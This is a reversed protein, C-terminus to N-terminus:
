SSSWHTQISLGFRGSCPWGGVDPMIFDLITVHPREQQFLKLGSRGNVALVVEHGKGHLVNDILDLIGLEDDIVLIKAM